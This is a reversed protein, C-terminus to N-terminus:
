LRCPLFFANEFCCPYGTGHSPSYAPAFTQLSTWTKSVFIVTQQFSACIFAFGFPHNNRVDSKKGWKALNQEKSALSCSCNTQKGYLQWHKHGCESKVVSYENHEAVKCTTWQMRPRTNECHSWLLLDPPWNKQHFDLWSVVSSLAIQMWVCLPPVCSLGAVKSPFLRCISHMKIKETKDLDKALHGAHSPM